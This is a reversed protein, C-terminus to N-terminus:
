AAGERYAPVGPTEPLPKMGLAARVDHGACFHGQQYRTTDVARCHRTGDWHVCTGDTPRTDGSV